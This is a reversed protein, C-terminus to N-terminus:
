SLGMAQGAGAKHKFNRKAWNKQKVNKSLAMGQYNMQYLIQRCSLLVRNLEQTLFIRQLLDKIRPSGKHNLQYPIWGCHPLGPNSGQTPFIGQLLSLRGVGTNQGPSNWPSYLGCPQLSNSIVSWSESESRKLLNPYLLWQLSLENLLKVCM